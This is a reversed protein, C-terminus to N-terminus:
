DTFREPHNLILLQKGLELDLPIKKLVWKLQQGKQKNREKKTKHMSVPKRRILIIKSM